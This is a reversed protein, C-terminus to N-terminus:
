RSRRRSFRQFEFKAGGLLAAVLRFPLTIIDLILGLVMLIADFIASIMADQYGSEDAHVGHEVRLIRNHDRSKTEARVPASM